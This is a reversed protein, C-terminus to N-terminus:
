RDQTQFRAETVGGTNVGLKATLLPYTEHEVELDEVELIMEAEKIGTISGEIEMFLGFPLQDLVIEVSKFQWTKRRKEYVIRPVLHMESLMAAVSDSDTIASEHEIQHKVDSSNEIRRKFTLLARTETKRIRLIANLEDLVGGGYVTNEEFEEGVFNAAVVALKDEVDSAQEATLRYKKEIEVSV